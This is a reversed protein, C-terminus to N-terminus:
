AALAPVAGLVSTTEAALVLVVAVREAESLALVTATPPVSVTEAVTVKGPAVVGGVPTTSAVIRMEPPVEFTAPVSVALPVLLEVVLKRTVAGVVAPVYV